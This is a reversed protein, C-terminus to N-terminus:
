RDLTLELQNKRANMRGVLDVFFALIISMFIIFGFIVQWITIFFKKECWRIKQDKGIVLNYFTEAATVVLPPQGVLTLATIYFSVLYQHSFSVNLFSSGPAIGVQNASIWSPVSPNSRYEYAGLTFFLCASIHVFFFWVLALIFFTVGSSNFRKSSKLRQMWSVVVYVQVMRSLSLWELIQVAVFAADNLELSPGTALTQQVAFLMSYFPIAAILDAWFALSLVYSRQSEETKSLVLFRIKCKWFLNCIFVADFVIQSVWFGIPGPWLESDFGLVLPLFLMQEIVLLIFVWHVVRNWALRRKVRALLMKRHLEGEDQGALAQSLFESFFHFVEFFFIPLLLTFAASEM